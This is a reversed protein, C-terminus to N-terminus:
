PPSLLCIRKDSVEVSPYLKCQTPDSLLLLVALCCTSGHRVEEREGGSNRRYIDPSDITDCVRQLITKIGSNTRGIILVRSQLCSQDAGM